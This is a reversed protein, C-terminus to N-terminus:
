PDNAATLAAAVSGRGYASGAWAAAAYDLAELQRSLQALEQGTLTTHALPRKDGGLVATLLHLAEWLTPSQVLHCVQSAVTEAAVCRPDPAPAMRRLARWHQVAASAVAARLIPWADFGAEAVVDASM